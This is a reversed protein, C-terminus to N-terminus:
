IQLPTIKTLTFMKILINNVNDETLYGAVTDNQNTIGPLQALVDNHLVAIEYLGKDGGYSIDNQIISIKYEKGFSVTAAKGAPVRTTNWQVDKLKLM